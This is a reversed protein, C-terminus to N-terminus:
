RNITSTAFRKFGEQADFSWWRLLLMLKLKYSILGTFDTNHEITLAELKQWQLKLLQIEEELPNGHVLTYQGDKNSIEKDKNKRAIRLKTVEQKLGYMYTSFSAVFRNDSKQFRPTHITNLNVKQFLEQAKPSLFKSVEDELITVLPKEAESPGAYKKFISSVKSCAESSETFSLHPLSALTYELDGKIM